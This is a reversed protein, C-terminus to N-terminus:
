EQFSDEQLQELRANIKRTESKERLYAFFGTGVFVLTIMLMVIAVFFPNFDSLPIFGTANGLGLVISVCGAYCLMWFRWAHAWNFVRLASTWIAILVCMFFLEIITRANVPGIGEVTISFVTFICVILVFSVCTTDLWRNLFKWHM